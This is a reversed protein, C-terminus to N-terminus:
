LLPLHLIAFRMYRAEDMVVRNKPVPNLVQSAAVLQTIQRLPLHVLQIAQVEGPLGALLLGHPVEQVVIQAAELLQVPVRTLCLDLHQKLMHM